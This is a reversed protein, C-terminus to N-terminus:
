LYLSFLSLSLSLSPHERKLEGHDDDFEYEYMFQASTNGDKSPLSNVSQGSQDSLVPGLPPFNRPPPSSHPLFFSCLPICPSTM